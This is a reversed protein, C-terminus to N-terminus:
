IKPICCTQLHLYWDVVADRLCMRIHTACLMVHVGAQIQNSAFTCESVQIILRVDEIRMTPSVDIFFPGGSHQGDAEVEAGYEFDEHQLVLRSVQKFTLKPISALQSTATPASLVSTHFM